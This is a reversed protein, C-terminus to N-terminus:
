FVLHAYGCNQDINKGNKLTRLAKTSYIWYNVLILADTTRKKKIYCLENMKKNKIKQNVYCKCKCIHKRIYFREIAFVKLEPKVKDRRRLSEHLRM